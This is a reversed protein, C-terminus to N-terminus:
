SVASVIATTILRWRAGIRSSSVGNSTSSNWWRAALRRLGATEFPKGNARAATSTAICSAAPLRGAHRHVRQEAALHVVLDREAGGDADAVLVGDALM